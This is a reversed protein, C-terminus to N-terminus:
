FHNQEMWEELVLLHWVQTEARQTVAQQVATPSLWQNIRSNSSLLREKLQDQDQPTAFLWRELPIGFGQKRRDVFSSPLDRKLIQRFPQKGQWGEMGGHNHILIEMPITAALEAIRVDVFPTRSELGHMMSAIDVKTLIDCPLYNYIDVSRARALPDEAAALSFASAMTPPTQGMAEVFEPRILTNVDARCVCNHFALWDEVGPHAIAPDPPFRQPLVRRLAPRILQKWLPRRPHGPSILQDLWGRYSHYGAFFEDGGDGSLVM